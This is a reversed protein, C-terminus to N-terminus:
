YIHVLAFTLTWFLVFTMAQSSAANTILGLANVTTFRDLKLGVWLFLTFQVALTILIFILLGHLSTAGLIGAISGGVLYMVINVTELQKMNFMLTELSVMNKPNNLAADPGIQQAPNM